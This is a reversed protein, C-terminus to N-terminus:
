GAATAGILLADAITASLGPHSSREAAGTTRADATALTTGAASTALLYSAGADGAIGTAQTAVPWLGGAVCRFGSRM